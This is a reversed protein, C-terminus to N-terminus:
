EKYKVMNYKVRTRLWEKPYITEYKSYFQVQAM